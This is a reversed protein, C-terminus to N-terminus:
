DYSDKAVHLKHAIPLVFTPIALEGLGQLYCSPPNAHVAIYGPVLMIADETHTTVASVHCCATSPRLLTIVLTDTSVQPSPILNPPCLDESRLSQSQCFSIVLSKTVAVKLDGIESARWTITTM